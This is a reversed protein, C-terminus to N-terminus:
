DKIAWSDLVRKQYDGKIGGFVKEFNRVVGGMGIGM